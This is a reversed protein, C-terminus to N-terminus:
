PAFVVGRREWALTMSEEILKWRQLIRASEYLMAPSGPRRKSPDPEQHMRLGAGHRLKRGFKHGALNSTSDVSFWPYRVMLSHSTLGFGHVPPLEALQMLEHFVGDLFVRREPEKRGVLGGICLLEGPRRRSVLLALHSAPEGFHYAESVLLGADRLLDGNELSQAIADSIQRASPRTGKVGPIVDLSAVKVSPYRELFPRVWAAYDRTDIVKGRSWASYAGSDIFLEEIPPLNSLLGPSTGFPILAHRYDATRFQISQRGGPVGAYIIM